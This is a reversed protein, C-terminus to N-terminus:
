LEEKNNNTTLTKREIKIKELLESFEKTSKIVFELNNENTTANKQMFLQIFADMDGVLKSLKLFLESNKTQNERLERLDM